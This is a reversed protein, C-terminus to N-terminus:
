PKVCEIFTYLPVKDTREIKTQVGRAVVKQYDEMDIYWDHLSKVSWGEAVLTNIYEPLSRYYYTFPGVQNAIKFPMEFTKSLNRKVLFNRDETVDGTRYFYPNMLSLILRGGKPKTVRFLSRCAARLDKCYLLLLSAVIIDFTDASYTLSQVDQTEFHVWDPLSDPTVIDCAYAKSPGIHDFLWGTGTGVDLLAAEECQGLLDVINPILGRERLYQSDWDPDGILNRYPAASQLWMSM